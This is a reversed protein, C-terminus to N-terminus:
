EEKKFGKVVLCKVCQRYCKNRFYRNKWEHEENNLTCDSVTSYTTNAMWRFKKGCMLCKAVAGGLLEYKTEGCYPCVIKATMSHEIM